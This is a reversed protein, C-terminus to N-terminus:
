EKREGAASQAKVAARQKRKRKRMAKQGVECAKWYEENTKSRKYKLKTSCKKTEPNRCQFGRMASWGCSCREWCQCGESAITDCLVCRMESKKFLADMVSM